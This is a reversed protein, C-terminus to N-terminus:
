PLIIGYRAEIMAALEDARADVMAADAQGAIAGRILSVGERTAALGHSGDAVMEMLFKEYLLALSEVLRALKPAFLSHADPLIKETALMIDSIVKKDILEPTLQNVSGSIEELTELLETFDSSTM